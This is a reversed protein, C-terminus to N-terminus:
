TSPPASQPTEALLQFLAAMDLPETPRDDISPPTTAPPHHEGHAVFTM